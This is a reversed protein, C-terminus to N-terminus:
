TSVKRNRNFRKPHRERAVIMETRRRMESEENQVTAREAAEVLREALEYAEDVSMDFEAVYKGDLWADLEVKGNVAECKTFRREAGQTRACLSIWHEDCTCCHSPDTIM